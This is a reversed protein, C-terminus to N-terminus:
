AGLLPHIPPLNFRAREENAAKRWGKRWAQQLTSDTVYRDPQYPYGQLWADYGLAAWYDITEQPHLAM